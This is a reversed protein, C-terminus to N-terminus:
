SEKAGEGNRAVQEEASLGSYANRFQRHFEAEGSDCWIAWRNLPLYTITQSRLGECLCLERWVVLSSGGGHGAGSCCPPSLGAAQRNHGASGHM